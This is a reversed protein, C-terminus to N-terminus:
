VENARRRFLKDKLKAAVLFLFMLLAATRSGFYKSKM